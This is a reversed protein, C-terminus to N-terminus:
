FTGTESQERGSKQLCKLRFFFFFFSSKLGGLQEWPGVWVTYHAWSSAERIRCILLKRGARHLAPFLDRLAQHSAAAGEAGRPASESDSRISRAAARGPQSPPECGAHWKRYRGKEICSCDPDPKSGPREWGQWSWKFILKGENKHM